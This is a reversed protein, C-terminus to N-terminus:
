NLTPVEPDYPDGEYVGDLEPVYETPYFDDLEDLEDNDSMKVM